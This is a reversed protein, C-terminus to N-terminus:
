IKSKVMPFPNIQYHRHNQEITSEELLYETQQIVFRYYNKCDTAPLYPYDTIKGFSIADKATQDVTDHKPIDNHGPICIFM